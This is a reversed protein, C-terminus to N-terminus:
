SYCRFKVKIDMHKWTNTLGRDLIPPNLVSLLQSNKVESEEEEKTVSKQLACHAIIYLRELNGM